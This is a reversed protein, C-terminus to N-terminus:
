RIVVTYTKPNANDSRWKDTVRVTGLEIEVSEVINTGGYQGLVSRQREFEVDSDSVVVQTIAQDSVMVTKLWHADEPHMEVQAPKRAFVAALAGLDPHTSLIAALRAQTREAPDASAGLWADQLKAMQEATLKAEMGFTGMVENSRVMVPTYSGMEYIAEQPFSDVPHSIEPAKYTMAACSRCYSGLMLAGRAGCWQCEEVAKVPKWASGTWVEVMGATTRLDGANM